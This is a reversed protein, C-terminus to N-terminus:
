YNLLPVCLESTFLTDAFKNKRIQFFTFIYQRFPKVIQFGRQSGRLLKKRTIFLLWSIKTLLIFHFLRPYTCKNPPPLSRDFSLSLLWVDFCMHPTYNCVGRFCCKIQLKKDPTQLLFPKWSFLLLHDRIYDNTIRNAFMIKIGYQRKCNNPIQRMKSHNIVLGSKTRAFMLNYFQWHLRIKVTTWQSSM